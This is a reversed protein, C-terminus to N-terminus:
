SVGGPKPMARCREAHSQAWARAEAEASRAGNECWDGKDWETADYRNCGGCKAQTASEAPYETVDVPAGGVNVYRAIVGEPWATGTQTSM